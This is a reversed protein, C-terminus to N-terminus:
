TIAKSNHLQELDVRNIPGLTATEPRGVRASFNFTESNRIFLHAILITKLYPFTVGERRDSKRVRQGHTKYVKEM